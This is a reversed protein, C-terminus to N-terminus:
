VLKHSVIKLHCGGGGGGRVGGGCYFSNAEQHFHVRM